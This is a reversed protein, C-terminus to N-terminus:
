SNALFRPSSSYLTGRRGETDRQVGRCGETGRQVVRYGETDRQVGSHGETDRHVGRYGELWLSPSLSLSLTWSVLDRGM